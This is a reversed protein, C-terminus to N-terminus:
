SGAAEKGAVAKVEALLDGFKGYNVKVGDDLDLEIRQDAYHKLKEDFKQLEESHKILADREKTLKKAHSTSSAAAIDGALQEIRADIKGSLPIVYETRMRALTGANYRHLYVLCQFARQKGSSFLWYIPRRKYLSLHHKYFGSSLYRRIAERASESKKQGISEAIFKLNEEIHEEPWATAIFQEIRNSADDDFWQFETFPVIGDDDAAFSEYQSPDFGENGSHAYILGPNDLSYRGMMCGIAYSILRQIDEERNPQYLTIQDDSVDPSMEDQLGYADIFLRNNEEELEKMTAFRSLCESDAAEQSLQLTATKHNLTPLTQFDWSTEVSDWDIRALRVTNKVTLSVQSHIRSARDLSLPLVAVTGAKYHVTPNILTALYGACVSCLFGTVYDLDEDCPFCSPSATEFLFGPDSKRVGFFSASVDTWSVASMFQYKLNRPTSRRKGSEDVFNKLRFGDDEWDIVFQNNGYWKRFSGGKRCPYWRTSHSHTFRSTLSSRAINIEYWLRLFRENEGTTIGDRTPAIEDLRPHQSFSDRVTDSVWYAVPSGPIKEFDSNSPTYTETSGFRRELEDVSAVSGQKDFLRRFTGHFDPLLAKRYVFSCSGFDSGFVGRGNHIFTDITHHSFLAKRLAEFSSLFMWNPITILGVFGNSKSSCLNRMIFCAYLDGKADKYHQAVYEKLKANFYKGGMYPPNAVVADYEDALIRTQEILLRFSRAAAQEFMGGHAIVDDVRKDIAPLKAALTEPVQILSGFTKGHEFLDILRAIDAQSIEGKVSLNKKSFLPSKEEAIEEFLEGSPPLETMLIPANLAETIEKADLGKSEQIALVHPEIGHAFIRRDDARAKMMLALSALQAAREDIELGYLNKELILRPINKKAFGREVYIAKLLDYAEVLIHGSGCAPDLLTLEEPDLKEPTISKLQEEVEPTQEAPEIYYEMQGKLSSNPYTAMWQRGLSNQVLYKVIWNPTFLQTAAPIDESKVVKGIVEDKKESIYFQYLWGIVEVEQWDEEPIENVLTRILSDSHLLNDPLLLETEDDIREFLFPMAKHLANCQAILLMRYLEADKDGALKLDVVQQPDLGPLDVSDAHELIEPTNSGAPHSLVRYGHELYEHLEMFRIAVLRNFWTYAMAEMVQDFGQRAVRQELQKRQEGVKKPFARGTIVAVDGEVTVPETKKKTLGYYSARDTVAQIFDRRAQPAYKKLINRNM